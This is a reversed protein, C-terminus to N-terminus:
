WFCSLYGVALLYALFAPCCTCGVAALIFGHLHFSGVQVVLDTPGEGVKIERANVDTRRKMMSPTEWEPLVAKAVESRLQEILTQKSSGSADSGSEDTGNAGTSSSSSSGDEGATKGKGTFSAGM